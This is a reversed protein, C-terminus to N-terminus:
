VHNWVGQGSGGLLLCLLLYLPAIAERLRRLV